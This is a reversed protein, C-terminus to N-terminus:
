WRFDTHGVVACEGANVDREKVLDEGFEGVHRAPLCRV